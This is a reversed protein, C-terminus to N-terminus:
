LQRGSLKTLFKDLGMFILIAIPIFFIYVPLLTFFDSLSTVFVAMSDSLGIAFGKSASESPNSMSGTIVFVVILLTMFSSIIIWGKKSIAPKYDVLLPKHAPKLKRMVNETFDASVTELGGQELISRTQMDININNKKM